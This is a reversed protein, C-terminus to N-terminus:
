KTYMNWINDDQEDSTLGFGNDTIEVLVDKGSIKTIVDIKSKEPCYKVANGVFNDLVEKIKESDMEINIDMEPQYLRIEINKENAKVRNVKVISKVIDILNQNTKNLDFPVYEESIVQSFENALRVLRSSTEILGTMIDQQEQASLDYSELLEVFSKITSAPNKLDHAVMALAEDKQIRLKKLKKESNELKVKQEQLNEIVLRMQDIKIRLRKNKEELFEIEKNLAENERKLQDLISLKQETNNKIRSSESKSKLSFINNKILFYVLGIIIIFLFSIFTIGVLSDM